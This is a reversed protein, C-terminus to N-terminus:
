ASTGCSCSRKCPQYSDCEPIMWGCCTRFISLGGNALDDARPQDRPSAKPIGTQEGLLYDGCLTAM